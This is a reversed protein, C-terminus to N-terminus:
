VKPDELWGAAKKAFYSVIADAGARKLCLLAELATDQENLWGAKAAAMHMAYEGSVQYAFTPVAFTQKVKAIVDLYPMGPKVMVIDAGEQLDLAVERLAEEINAPDMQYSHKNSGGLAAASGVADRFPGYYNSAYKASYALIKTNYFGEGELYQRIIQIRGDMMDSPAIIDAGAMAHSLAQKALIEVTADNTVYGHQDLIGDQGHTTYPDLAVDSIIGLAPFKAKITRITSQILGDPNYAEAALASKQEVPILPFLIIARIGLGTVVQLEELLLDISWRYTDPMSEIPQKQQQGHTVFMPYILDSVALTHERLLQRSFPDSRMRRLRTQPYTGPFHYM